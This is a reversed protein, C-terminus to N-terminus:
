DISKIQINKSYRSTTTMNHLCYDGSVEIALILNIYLLPHWSGFFTTSAPVPLPVVASLVPSVPSVSGDRQRGTHSIRQNGAPGTPRHLWLNTPPPPSNFNHYTQYTTIISSANKCACKFLKTEGNWRSTKRRFTSCGQYRAGGTKLLFGGTKSISCPHWLYLPADCCRLSRSSGDM